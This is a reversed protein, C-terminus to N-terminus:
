QTMLGEPHGVVVFYLEDPRLIRAATRRIDEMTVAEINANRTNIYEPTLDDQQMGVMIRAIAANSDFRLAYAGTLYTKAAELEEETVGNEAAKTWEEKVVEIAQAIRDNASSFSGFYGEAYDRPSLYSYIGYTLGRKERVEHMLRAEFGGSGLIENLVYAPFFDPDHRTIGKHGFIAVSQPTDFEVVEIGATTEIQVHDPLPRESLPLDGLLKDLLVGLEEASIDGAASVYLRDKVLTDRHANQIDERTLASVTEVTGDLVSGYPHDGYIVENFRARAKANPDTTDSALGSLVQARVRDIADQPFNPALISGRLLAMSEETKETLFRASISLTDGGVDYSFQAAIAESAAAFDRADMDGTGEVLLATMLNVAGRKGPRDMSAGGKFRLELAVFPISTEESLWAKIGGPSTIEQIKVDAQAVHSTLVLTLLVARMLLKQMIM